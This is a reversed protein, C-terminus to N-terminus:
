SPSPSPCPGSENRLDLPEKVATISFSLPCQLLHPPGLGQTSWQLDGAHTLGTYASEQPIAPLAGHTDPGPAQMNLIPLSSM